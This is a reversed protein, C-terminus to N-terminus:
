QIMSAAESKLSLVTTDYNAVTMNQHANKRKLITVENNIEALKKAQDVLNSRDHLYELTNAKGAKVYSPFLTPCIAFVVDGFKQLSDPITMSKLEQCDDFAWDGIEQLQTHLLDVNDLSSCKEFASYGISRLTTPFSVTTLSRCSRFAGHGISTIGEPINVVVLNVALYCANRGVKTINQLFVVQTALSRRERQAIIGSLPWPM